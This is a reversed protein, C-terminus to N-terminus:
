VKLREYRPVLPYFHTYINAPFPSLNWTQYQADRQQEITWLDPINRNLFLITSVWSQCTHSFSHIQTQLTHTAQTNVLTHIRQAGHNYLPVELFDNSFTEAGKVRLAQYTCTANDQESPKQQLMTQQIQMCVQPGTVYKQETLPLASLDVENYM